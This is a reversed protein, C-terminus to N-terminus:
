PGRLARKKLGGEGDGIFHPPRTQDADAETWEDIYELATMVMGISKNLLASSNEIKRKAEGTLDSTTAESLAKLDLQIAVLMDPLTRLSRALVDIRTSEASM